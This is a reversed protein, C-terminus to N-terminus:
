ITVGEEELRGLYNEDYGEDMLRKIQDGIDELQRELEQAKRQLRLIAEANIKRLTMSGEKEFRHARRVRCTMYSNCLDVSYLSRTRCGSESQDHNPCKENFCPGAISSEVRAATLEPWKGQNM